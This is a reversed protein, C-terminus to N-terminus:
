CGGEAVPTEETQGNNTGYKKALMSGVQSLVIMIMTIYLAYEPPISGQNARYIAEASTILAVVLTAYDTTNWKDVMM